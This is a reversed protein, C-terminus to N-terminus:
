TCATFVQYGPVEWPVCKCEELLHRTRCDEYAEVECNKENLPMKLFDDKATMRKVVTMTYIGGGFGVYNSLTNIKVKASVTQISEIATGFNLTENSFRADNHEKSSAQLSRDENYDLVLLLENMKGQDSTENLALKYCLQGELITPLFSSCVPFTIGPLHVNKESIRLDSKYACFPIFASSWTSTLHPPHSVQSSDNGTFFTIIAFDDICVDSICHM